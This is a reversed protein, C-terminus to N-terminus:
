QKANGKLKKLFRYYNSPESFGARMVLDGIKHKGNLKESEIFNCRVQNIYFNLSCGFSKNFLRSFYYKTYGFEKALSDLTIDEAFNKDIYDIIRIIFDNDGKDADEPPYNKVILGLVAKAFGEALISGGGGLNKQALMVLGSIERNYEANGLLSYYLPVKEVVFQKYLNYPIIFNTCLNEEVTTIQHAFYSPVFIIDGKKACFFKHGNRVQVKGYHVCLLEISRHFHLHTQVNRYDTSSLKQEIDRLPEYSLAINEM